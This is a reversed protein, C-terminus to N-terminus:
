GLSRFWQRWTAAFDSQYADYTRRLEDGPWDDPLLQRPLLPDLTLHRTTAAAIVFTEALADPDRDRLRPATAALEELLEGAVEAWEPVGFLADVDIADDPEGTFWVCEAHAASAPLNDPRIWVGARLEALRQQTMARRLAARARADRTVARVVGIRWAGKWATTRPHRGQEQRAHRELLPGALAYGSDVAVLEGADVMRSLAVRTTGAAVGYQEGSAVLAAASLRPPNIGLLTSAIVSRATLPRVLTNRAQSM